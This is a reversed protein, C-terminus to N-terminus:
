EMHFSRLMNEYAPRFQDFEGEPAIFVLYMVKGQGSQVTVLWERERQTQGESTRVPSNATFEVSRGPMSNVRIPQPSGVLRADANQEQVGTVIQKTIEDLSAGAAAAPAAGLMVGYGIANQSVGAPPAITLSSGDQSQALKWNEPYRLRYGQGQHRQFASSPAVEQATAQVTAQQQKQQQAIQEATLPTMRAVREKLSRFGASDARYTKPPLTQVIASVAQERNGPDPHDSLFQPGGSGGAAKLKEFFLAIQHPDYGADYMLRTGVADAESEASRSYKLLVMGGGIQAGLQALAGGTGRGAAATVLGGLLQALEGKTAQQTGHRKVVHGIEHAMVGALQAENDAAQITGLNVYVPGGPLSFANIEKQNVVKFTYAYRPEPTQAALQEGLQRVYQSVPDSDPLIPLQKDAEAAAQRGLKVEDDRSYLNFQASAPLAIGVPLAACFALVVALWRSGPKLIKM